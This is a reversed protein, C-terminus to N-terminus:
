LLVEIDSIPYTVCPHMYGFKMDSKRLLENGPHYVKGSVLKTRCASCEGSRCLSPVVIGAKELAVLVTETARAPIKRGDPLTIEFTNSDDINEPWAPLKTPDGPMTQVECRIKSSRVGLKELEPIVFDYMAGPGCLFFTADKVDGVIEKIVDANIFGTRENCDEGPESIIPHLKFIGKEDLKRLSDEFIIDNEKACGYILDVKKGEEFRDYDTQLMSMFPTIGSGGAIFVLRKGHVAPFYTFNGSPGSSVLEDGVKLSNLLYDSVFGNKNARVTIEYWTRQTSASSISYARTTLIGNIEIEVTIYQGPIFPPLYGGLPMLRITKASNTESRIETVKYEIKKPHLKDITAKMKGRNSRHDVNFKKSAYIESTIEDLKELGQFTNKM